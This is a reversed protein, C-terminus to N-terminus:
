KKKAKRESRGRTSCRLSACSAISFILCFCLFSATYLFIPYFRLNTCFDSLTATKKLHSKYSKITKETVGQASKAFLFNEFAEEMTLTPSNFNFQVM